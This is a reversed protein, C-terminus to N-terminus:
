IYLSVWEIHLSLPMRRRIFARLHPRGSLQPIQGPAQAFHYHTPRGGVELKHEVHTQGQSRLVHKDLLADDGMMGSM